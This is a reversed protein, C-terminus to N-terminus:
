EDELVTVHLINGDDSHRYELSHSLGRMLGIGHGGITPSEDAVHVTPDFAGCNDRISLAAGGPVAQLTLSFRSDPGTTRDHRILNACHEDVIVALRHAVTRPVNAADAVAILEDLAANIGTNSVPFDM